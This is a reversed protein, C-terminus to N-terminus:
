PDKAQAENRIRDAEADARGRLRVSEAEADAKLLAVRRESDSKIDAALRDGESEYDAVKKKRESAIREFIAQRVAPPHNSRRLRVDVVEVGDEARAAARLGSDELLRQRLRERERDVKGPETSVLDDLEMTGIAAGLESNIRQGLVARAGDATGVTR